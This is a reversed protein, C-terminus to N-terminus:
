KLLGAQARHRRLIHKSQTWECGWDLDNVLSSSSHTEPCKEQAAKMTWPDTSEEGPVKIM